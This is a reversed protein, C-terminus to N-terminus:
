RRLFRQRGVFELVFLALLRSPRERRSIQRHAADHGYFGLQTSLVGFLPALAVAWWSDRLLVLAGVAGALGLLVALLLGAYFLPRRHMLGLRRIEAALEGYGGPRTAPSPRTEVSM